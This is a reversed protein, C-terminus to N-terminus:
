GGLSKMFSRHAEHNFGDPKYIAAKTETMLSYRCSPAVWSGDVNPGNGDDRICAVLDRDIHHVLVTACHRIGSADEVM